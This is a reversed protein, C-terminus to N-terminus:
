IASSEGAAVSRLVGSYFNEVKALYDADSFDTIEAKSFFFLFTSISLFILSANLLIRHIAQIVVRRKIKAIQSVFSIEGSM